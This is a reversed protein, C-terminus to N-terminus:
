RGQALESGEDCHDFDAADRESRTVQVQGLRRHALLEALQLADEANSQEVSGRPTSDRSSGAL